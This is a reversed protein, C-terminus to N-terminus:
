FYGGRLLQSGSEGSGRCGACAVEWNGNYFETHKGVKTVDAKGRRKEIIKGRSERLATQQGTGVRRKESVKMSLMLMEKKNNSGNVLGAEILTKM